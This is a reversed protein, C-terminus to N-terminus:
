SPEFYNWVAGEKTFRALMRFTVRRPIDAGNLHQTCALALTSVELYIRHMWQELKRHHCCNHFVKAREHESILKSFLELLITGLAFIDVEPGNDTETIQETAAYSATGGGATRGDNGFNRSTFFESSPYRTSM